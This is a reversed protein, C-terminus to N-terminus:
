KLDLPRLVHDERVPVPSGSCVVHCGEILYTKSNPKLFLFHMFRLFNM